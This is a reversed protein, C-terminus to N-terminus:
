AHPANGSPQFWLIVQRPQYDQPIEHRKRIIRALVTEKGGQRLLCKGGKRPVQFQYWHREPVYETLGASLHAM